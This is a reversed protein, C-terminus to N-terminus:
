PSRPPTRPTAADEVRLVEWPLPGQLPPPAQDLQSGESLVGRIVGFAFAEWSTPERGGLSQEVVLAALRRGLSAWDVSPHEQPGRVRVTLMAEDIAEAQEETERAEQAGARGWEWKKERERPAPQAPQPPRPPPVKLIGVAELTRLPVGVTLDVYQTLPDIGGWMALHVGGGAADRGGALLMDARRMKWPGLRDIDVSVRSTMIELKKERRAPGGKKGSKKKPDEVTRVPAIERAPSSARVAASEAQTLDSMALNSDPVKLLGLLGDLLEGRAIQARMPLLTVTMSEEVPLAGDKPAIEVQLVSGPEMSVVDTLLPNIRGLVTRAIAPELELRATIPRALFLRPQEKGHGPVAAGYLDVHSTDTAISMWVPAFKPRPGWRKSTVLRLCEAYAPPAPETAVIPPSLATELPVAPEAAPTPAEPPTTPATDSVAEGKAADTATAEAAAGEASGEAAAETPESAAEPAAPETASVAAPSAEPATAPPQAAPREAKATQLADLLREMAFDTGIEGQLTCHKGIAQHMELPAHISGRTISLGFTRKGERLTLHGNLSTTGGCYTLEEPVYGVAPSDRPLDGGEEAAAAAKDVAPPTVLMALRPEGTEGNLSLDLEPASVDFSIPGGTVLSWLSGTSRISQIRALERGEDPSREFVSVGEIEIPRTWGMRVREIALGEPAGPLVQRGVTRAFYATAQPTSALYPAAFASGAVAGGVISLRALWRLWASQISGLGLLGGFVTKTVKSIARGIWLLGALALSVIRRSIRTLARAANALWGESGDGKASPLSIRPLVRARAAWTRAVALKVAAVFATIKGGLHSGEWEELESEESGSEGGDDSTPPDWDKRFSSSTEWGGESEGTSCALPRRRREHGVSCGFQAVRPRVRAHPRPARRCRGHLVELSKAVLCGARM